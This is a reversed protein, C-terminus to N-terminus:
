RATPMEATPAEEVADPFADVPPEGAMLAAANMRVSWRVMDTFPEYQFPGDSHDSIDSLASAPGPRRHHQFLAPQTTLCEHYARGRDGECYFRLEIDFGDTLNKLGLEYLMQRAGKRSVAYGLSCVGEQAHHVVRTHNPYKEGLSFPNSLSWLYQTQAVTEDDTHVVRGKPTVNNRQVPFQMGCHGLWLSDWSDGYPSDTPEGTRPLQTYLLDAPQSTNGAPHPYTPDAYLSESGELPQILAQSSSAFAQLQERIRIDWDADDELILASSLNRRVVEQIANMHARWSGVSADPIREQGKGMTIANTPVDAGSVGDIFEIEINSLAAALVM